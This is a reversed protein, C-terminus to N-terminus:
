GFLEHEEFLGCGDPAPTWRLEAHRLEAFRVLLEGLRNIAAAEAPISFRCVGEDPADRNLDIAVQLACHGAGSVTYARLRVLRYFRDAPDDSGYQDVVEDPVRAPFRRLAQGFARLEEPDRHMDAAGAFTGNSVALELHVPYPEDYPSRPLMRIVLSPGPM